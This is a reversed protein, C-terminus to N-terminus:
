MSGFVPPDILYKINHFPYDTEKEFFLHKLKISGQFCCLKCKWLWLVRIGTLGFRHPRSQIARTSLIQCWVMALPSNANRPMTFYPSCFIFWTTNVQACSFVDVNYQHNKHKRHIQLLGFRSITLCHQSRSDTTFKRSLLVKLSPRMKETGANCYSLLEINEPVWFRLLLGCTMKSPEVVAPFGVSYKWAPTSDQWIRETHLWNSSDQWTKAGHTPNPVNAGGSTGDQSFYPNLRLNM